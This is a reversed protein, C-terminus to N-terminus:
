CFATSFLTKFRSKFTSLSDCNLVAPPLSNWTLPARTPSPTATEFFESVQLDTLSFVINYCLILDAHLRRLELSPLDLRKSWIVSDHEILPCVYTLYVRFLLDINRSHFARYIAATRKIHRPLLVPLTCRPHCIM